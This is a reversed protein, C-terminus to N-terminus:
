SSLLPFGFESTASIVFIESVNFNASSPLDYISSSTHQQEGNVSISNWCKGRLKATGGYLNDDTKSKYMKTSAFVNVSLSSTIMIACLVLSIVKKM